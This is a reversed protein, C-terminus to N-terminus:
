EFRQDTRYGAIIRYCGMIGPAVSMIPCADTFQHHDGWLQGCNEHACCRLPRLIQRIKELSDYASM